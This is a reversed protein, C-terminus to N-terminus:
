STQLVANLSLYTFWSFGVVDFVLSICFKWVFIPIYFRCAFGGVYGPSNQSGVFWVVLTRIDGIDWPFAPLHEVCLLYCALCFIPSLLCICACFCICALRNHCCPSFSMINSDHSVMANFVKDNTTWHLNKQALVFSNTRFHKCKQDYGQPSERICIKGHTSLLTDRNQQIKM